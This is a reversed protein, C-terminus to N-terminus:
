ALMSAYEERAQVLVPVNSDANVWSSLFQRSAELASAKNGAIVQARAMGLPAIAYFPSFPESGRCDRIRQFERAAEVGCGQMLYAQARLYIPALVASFGLEFPKVAELQKLAEIPEKRALAIGAKAIPVLISNIITHEPHEEVLKEVIAEAEDECGCASLTLAVRLCPDYNPNRELIRRAGQLAQGTNGYAMETWNAFALHNTGVDFLNRLEAMRATEEYLERAERLKGSCGAVQARAAVIEFERPKDRAWEVHQAAANDDGSIVALQYLLRRTPLTEVNLAVAREATEKAADFDGLGRYSHALNSYPFGHSPNRRVAEKAEEVGREFQGLLNHMFALANAPQFERPFSRKWEELTEAADAQNGTVEYYYQYKISFRERDSVHDVQEYALKAYESARDVEGLNSYIRSLSVYAAAFKPDLDIAKLFFPIAEASHALRMLANAQATLLGAEAAQTAMTHYTAASHEMDGLAYYSDGIKELIQVDLEQRSEDAVKPLLERAHELAEIAERHAYRRTATDAAVILYRVAPEYDRGEEFHLAIQAAAEPEAGSRLAELGKALSRHFNIRQTPNLHRYLVERYLAHRFEYEFTIEGNSLERLGVAKLFQQREALIACQEEIRASDSNMMTAVSWATFHEGAVSACKLLKQDAESLHQLQLKLMQRLTEPVGPDLEELPVTMRWRGDIRSMTGQQALHDLMATMFLPNGDSHRHILNAFESPLDADAFEEDLYEAVETPSLRELSLEVCLRHMLLDQKLDKFPSEHLILDAPRFTGLILLKAPERRRSIASILDVTSHDAWHLDELIIVLAATETIVELAECLERVMRDRTAGLTERQLSVQQESSVLSPFQIIWTPARTALINVIEAGTSGRALHGLAEFIPYYAEKGGFGEVSQGRTVRVDPNTEARLQFTDVLSTKGIGAEGSVFVVQRPGGIAKKFHADLKALELQRGVLKTPTISVSPLSSIEIDSVPAIFQYGRKPLTEVFHPKEVQDGLVRRIELIYRRLVEPQVYTDPWVANLLEDHTVLRGPNEVLHKLVAYPKPMLTIRTNERWLCQNVEDLRFPQFSKM